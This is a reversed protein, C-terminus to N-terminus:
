PVLPKPVIEPKEPVGFAKILVTKGGATRSIEAVQEVNIEPEDVGLSKLAGSM